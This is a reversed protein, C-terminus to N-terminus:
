VLIGAAKLTDALGRAFLEYGQANAHIADSRLEPRALVDSWGNAHLPLKMESALEAYM